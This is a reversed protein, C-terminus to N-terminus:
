HVMVGADKSAEIQNRIRSRGILLVLLAIISSAAMIGALPVVTHSKFAGVGYTALAGLSLQLFGMMASASGANQSFPAMSLASTNPSIYGLGCLNIFIFGITGWLGVWGYVAGILFLIGSVAEIILVAKVVQESKYYRMVINNIQASGIFGVSLGAFIWGYIQGSLGFIGMFIVPSAAVYAFLGAFAFSGTFVYTYFQPETIVLWFNSIIPLPKLSVSTDPQYSEPLMVIVALLTLIAIITLILFVAHWGFVATVYGGVTPAVMPSAGLILMLLSFVKANDEVPFLDRVMAISAVGAACSGIAQVLRLLILANITHVWMCGLSAVIYIAMGAYLPNKRGFRDLLPGYLLQGAALGIFFSSLSLTVHNTDTHLDDAIAKFGPLYMDISFPSLTTLLGLILIRFVYQQKTM